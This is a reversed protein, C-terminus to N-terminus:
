YDCIVVLKQQKQSAGSSRAQEVDM